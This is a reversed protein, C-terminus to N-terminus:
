GNRGKKRPGIERATLSRLQKEYCSSVMGALTEYVCCAAVRNSPHMRGRYNERIRVYVVGDKAVVQGVRFKPKSAM